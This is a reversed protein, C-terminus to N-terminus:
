RVHEAVHLITPGERESTIADGALLTTRAAVRLSQVFAPPDDDTALEVWGDDARSLRWRGVGLLAPGLPAVFLAGGVEIAVAGAIERAPRVVVRVERGLCLEIGGDIPTEGALPAGRHLTGARSGLDRVIIQDGRRSVALHMRSVAPSAVPIIAARPSADSESEEPSRGLVVEDGLVVVMEQGRLEAHVLSQVVCRREIARGLDRVGEDDCTRAMAVAERRQGSAVLLTVENYAVRRAVIERDGKQGKALLAELADVDGAQGLARAQGATDRAQAYAHAARAHDGIAELEAAAHALDRKSAETLPARAALAVIASAHKGRAHTYGVTHAPATALAQAYHRLRALPDAEADGRAILVRAVEDPRLAEAFLSAAQGLEGRLEAARARAVARALASTRSGTGFLKGLIRAM